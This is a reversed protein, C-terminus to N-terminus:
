YNPLSCCWGSVAQFIPNRYSHSMCVTHCNELMKDCDDCLPLIDNITLGKFAWLSPLEESLNSTDVCDRVAYLHFYIGARFLILRNSVIVYWMVLMSCLSHSPRLQVHMFQNCERMQVAVAMRVCPANWLQDHGRTNWWLLCCLM